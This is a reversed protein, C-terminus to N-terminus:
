AMAALLVAPVEARVVAMLAAVVAMLAGDAGVPRVAVPLLPETVRLQVAGKFLPPLVM